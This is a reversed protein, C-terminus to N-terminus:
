SSIIDSVWGKDGSTERSVNGLNLNVENDWTNLSFIRIKM